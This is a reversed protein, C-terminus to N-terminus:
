VSEVNKTAIVPIGTRATNSLIVDGIAVPATVTVKKLEEMCLFIKEKPIEKETKVSVMPITGGTVPVSSTVTRVPHAVEQEAYIKGKRCTNGTIEKIEKGARSVKLTCGMPCGICTLYIEEM